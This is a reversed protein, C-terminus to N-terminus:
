IEADMFFTKKSYLVGVPKWITSPQKTNCCCLQATEVAVIHGVFKLINVVHEKVSFTQQGSILFMVRVEEFPHQACFVVYGHVSVARMQFGDDNMRLCKSLMYYSGIEPSPMHSVPSLLM